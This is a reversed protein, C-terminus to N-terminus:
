DVFYWVQLSIIACPTRRNELLSHVFKGVQEKMSILRVLHQVPKTLSTHQAPVM